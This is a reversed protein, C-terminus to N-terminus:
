AKWTSGRQRANGGAPAQAREARVRRVGLPGCRRALVVVDDRGVTELDLGDPRQAAARSGVAGVLTTATSASVSTLQCRMSAAALRRGGPQPGRQGAHEFFRQQLVGFRDMQRQRGTRRAPWGVQTAATSAGTAACALEASQLAGADEDVPDHRHGPGVIRRDSVEGGGFAGLGARGAGHRQGPGVDVADGGHRQLAASARARTGVGGGGVVRQLAAGAAAAAASCHSPAGTLTIGSSCRSSCAARLRQFRRWNSRAGRVRPARATRSEIRRRSLGAHRGTRM